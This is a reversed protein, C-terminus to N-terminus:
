RMKNSDCNMIFIQTMLIKKLLLKQCTTLQKAPGKLSTLIKEPNNIAIARLMMSYYNGMLFISLLFPVNVVKNRSNLKNGSIALRKQLNKRKSKTLGKDSSGNAAKM